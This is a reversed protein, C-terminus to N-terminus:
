FFPTHITVATNGDRRREPFGKLSELGPRRLRKTPEINGTLVQYERGVQHIYQLTPLLYWMWASIPGVM